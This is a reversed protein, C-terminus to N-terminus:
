ACYNVQYKGAIFKFPKYYKSMETRVEEMTDLNVVAKYTMRELPFATYYIMKSGTVHYEIIGHDEAYILAKLEYGEM